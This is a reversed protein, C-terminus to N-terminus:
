ILRVIIRIFDVNSNVGFLSLEYVYGKLVTDEIRAVEIITYEIGTIKCPTSENTAIEM